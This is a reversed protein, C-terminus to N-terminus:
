KNRKRRVPRQGPKPTSMVVPKPAQWSFTTDVSLVPYPHEAVTANYLIALDDTMLYIILLFASGPM